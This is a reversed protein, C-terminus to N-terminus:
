VSAGQGAAAVFAAISGMADGHFGLFEIGQRRIGTEDAREWVVRGVLHLEQPTTPLTLFLNIVGGVPVPKVAEVLLGRVSINRAVVDIRALGPAPRPGLTVQVPLTVWRRPPVNVLEQFVDDWLPDSQRRSLVANVGADRLRREPDLEHGLLAAISLDRTDPDDRIRRILTSVDAGRGDIVLLRPRRDRISGLMADENSVLIREVEPRWLLTARLRDVLDEAAWILVRSM